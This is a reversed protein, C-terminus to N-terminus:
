GMWQYTPCTLLEFLIKSSRSPLLQQAAYFVLWFSTNRVRLFTVRWHTLYVSLFLKLSIHDTLFLPRWMTNHSSLPLFSLRVESYKSLKTSSTVSPQTRLSLYSSALHVFNPLCHFHKLWSLYMWRLLPASYILSSSLRLLKSVNMSTIFQIASASTM